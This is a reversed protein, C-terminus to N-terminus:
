RVRFSKTASPHGDSRYEYRGRVLNVQWRRTGVFRLGTRRNLTSRPGILHFNQRKSRDNVVFLYRGARLRSPRDISGPVVVAIAGDRAVTATIGTTSSRGFAGETITVVTLAVVACALSLRATLRLLGLPLADPSLAECRPGIEL